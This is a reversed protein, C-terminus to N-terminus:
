INKAKKIKELYAEMEKLSFSSLNRDKTLGAKQAVLTGYKIDHFGAISHADPDISIMVNKDLAYEIWRWDM